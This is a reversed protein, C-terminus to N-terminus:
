EVVVMIAVDVTMRADVAKRRPREKVGVVVVRRRIAEVDREEVVEGGVV